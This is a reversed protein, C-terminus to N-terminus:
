ASNRGDPNDQPPLIVPKGQLKTLPGTVIEESEYSYGTSDNAWPGTLNRAQASAGNNENFDASSTLSQFAEKIGRETDEETRAALMLLAIIVMVADHEKRSADTTVPVRRNRLRHGVQETKRQIRRCRRRPIFGHLSLFDRSRKDTVMQDLAARLKSLFDPYKRAENVIAEGIIRFVRTEDEQTGM